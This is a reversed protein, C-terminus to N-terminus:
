PAHISLGSLFPRLWLIDSFLNTAHILYAADRGFSDGDLAARSYGYWAPMWTGLPKFLEPIVGNVSNKQHSFWNWQRFLLGEAPKESDKNTPLSIRFQENHESVLLSAERILTPLDGAELSLARIKSRLVRHDVSSIENTSSHVPRLLNGQVDVLSQDLWSVFASRQLNGTFPLLLQAMLMPILLASILRHYRTITLSNM